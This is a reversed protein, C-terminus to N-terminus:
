GDAIESELLNPKSYFDKLWHLFTHVFYYAMPVVVLTMVTSTLIGGTIATAIDSFQEMSPPPFLMVHSMAVAAAIATMLVPRLRFGSALPVARRMPVGKKMLEEIKDVLLISNSLVIGSLIALGWMVPPSWSMGRLWLALIAGVGELPIVLMLVLGTWFSRFFLALLLFVLLLGLKEGMNLQNFAALATIMMGAPNVQVMKPQNIQMKAPLLVSMTTAKLGLEKYYGLLSTSYLSNFTHLRDFGDTREFHAIQNLPVAKGRPTQIVIDSLDNTNKRQSSQYRILIRSHEYIQPSPQFFWSTMNGNLSMMAQSIVDAVSLGLEAVKRKDVVLRLEKQKTQDLYPSHLGPAQTRAIHLTKRADKYVLNPNFGRVLIEVPARAGAVPTPPVPQLLMADVEPIKQYIEKRLKRAIDWMTEKRQERAFTFNIIGRIENHTNVGYGAFYNGWMPASGAMLSINIVNKEQLYLHSIEKSIQFVRTPSTNPNLRVYLMGISTDTLPMQEQRLSSFVHVTIWLSVIVLMVWPLPHDLSWSVINYFKKEFRAFPKIFVKGVMRGFWDRPEKYLGLEEHKEVIKRAVDEDTVANEPSKFIHSIMLPTLTLAMWLSAVVTIEMPISMSRFGSGMDGKLFMMPAVVVIFALTSIVVAPMVEEAGIIAALRPHIGREIYRKTIEIVIISDDILKGVIFVTGAVIGFDRQYGLLSLVFFGFAVASPLIALAVITGSFEGLFLLMMLGALIVAIFFERVANKDNIKMIRTKAFATEFKLGPYDRELEHALHTAKSNVSYFDAKRTPQVGLWVAPKGNYFYDGYQEQVTDSVTAIDRLYVEHGNRTAVVLQPLKRKVNNENMEGSLFTSIIEGNEVSEVSILPGGSMTLDAKDFAKKIQGMSINYTRLKDRNVNIHIQRIPGGFTWVSRVGNIKQFRSIVLNNIFERLDKRSVGKRTVAFQPSPVNQRDIRVVRLPIAKGMLLPLDKRAIIDVLNKIEARKQDLNVGEKFYLAVLCWGKQSTTTTYTIDGVIQLNKILPQAILKSMDEARLGPYTCIVGLNEAPIVPAMRAPMDLFAAVGLVVMLLAIIITFHPHEIAYRPLSSRKNKSFAM